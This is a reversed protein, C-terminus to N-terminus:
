RPLFQNVYRSIKHRQSEKIDNFFIALNFGGSGEDDTRVVVGRCEVNSINNKAQRNIMPLAMKVAIRTFPPIYKNVRCYAGTCSVNQTTTSFGYGDAAINIPLAKEIRPFERRESPKKLRGM